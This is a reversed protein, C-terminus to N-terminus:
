VYHEEREMLNYAEEKLMRQFGQMYLLYWDTDEKPRGSRIGDKWVRDAIGCIYEMEASPSAMINDLM